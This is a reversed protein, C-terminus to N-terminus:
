AKGQNGPPIVLPKKPAEALKVITVTKSPNVQEQEIIIDAGGSKLIRELKAMIAEVIPPPSVDLGKAKKVITLFQQIAFSIAVWRGLLMPREMHNSILDSLHHAAIVIAWIVAKSVIAWGFSYGCWKALGERKWILASGVFLELGMLAGLTRYSEDLSIWQAIVAALLWKCGEIFWNRQNGM